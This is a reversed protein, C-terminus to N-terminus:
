RPRFKVSQIAGRSATTMWGDVAGERYGAVCELLEIEAVIREDWSHLFEGAFAQMRKRVGDILSIEEVLPVMAEVLGPVGSFRSIRVVVDDPVLAETSADTHTVPDKGLMVICIGAAMSELVTNTLNALRNPSVFVDVQRFYTLIEGHPLSREFAVRNALGARALLEKAWVPDSGGAVIVVYFRPCRRNVEILADLFEWAGKDATLRSVYLLIPWSETFQYKERISQATDNAVPDLDVGNLLVRYATSPALFRDFFPKAPSGDESSLVLDFPAKLAFYYFPQRLLMLWTSRHRNWNSVGHFRVVTPWGKLKFLAALVINRRDLYVLDAAGRNGHHKLVRSFQCVDNYLRALRDRLRRPRILVAMWDPLRFAPIIRFDIDINDFALHEVFETEVEERALFVVQAAIGRASVGELLKYVDPLGFPQWFGSEISTTFGSYLRFVFLLRMGSKASQETPM